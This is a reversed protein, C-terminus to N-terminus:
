RSTSQRTQLRARIRVWEESLARHGARAETRLAAFRQAERQAVESLRKAEAVVQEFREVLETIRFPKALLPFQLDEPTATEDGYGTMLVVPISRALAQRAVVLGSVKPLAYDILALDPHGLALASLGAEGDEAYQLDFGGRMSFATQLVEYVFRDDEVILVRRV